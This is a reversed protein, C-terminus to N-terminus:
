KFSTKLYSILSDVQPKSLSVWRPMMPNLPKGEEDLGKTIAESVQQDVTGRSPDKSYATKLDSWLLAPVKITQGKRTFTSGQGTLGHCAACSMDYLQKGTPQAPASASSCAAVVMSIAAALFLPVLITPKM